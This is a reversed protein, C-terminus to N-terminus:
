ILRDDVTPTGLQREGSPPKPIMVAHVGQPQYSGSLLAMKIAEWNTKLYTRLRDVTMGVVRRYAQQMNSGEVILEMLEDTGTHSGSNIGPHKTTSM